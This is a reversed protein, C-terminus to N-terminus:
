SNPLGSNFRRAFFFIIVFFPTSQSTLAERHRAHREELSAQAQCHEHDSRPTNKPTLIKKPDIVRGYSRVKQVVQSKKENEDRMKKRREREERKAQV